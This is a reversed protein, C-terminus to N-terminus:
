QSVLAKEITVKIAHAMGVTLDSTRPITHGRGHDFLERSQAHCLRSLSLSAKLYDRDKSGVIIATPIRILEEDVAADYKCAEQLNWPEIGCIFIACKFIPDSRGRGSHHILLSAALCAGQCFGIVADFPGETLVYNELDSLAPAFTTTFDTFFAYYEPQPPFIDPIRTATM